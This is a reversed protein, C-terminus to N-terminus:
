MAWYPHDKGRIIGVPTRLYFLFSGYKLPDPPVVHCTDGTGSCMYGRFFHQPSPFLIRARVAALAPEDNVLREHIGAFGRLNGLVTPHRFRGHV